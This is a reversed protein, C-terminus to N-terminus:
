NPRVRAMPLLRGIVGTSAVLVEDQACGILEAARQTLELSNAHGEPGTAVNANRAVVVIARAALGAGHERSIVVSPGAFRSKTYLGSTPVLADAALVLADPADDAIGINGTLARCGTPLATM